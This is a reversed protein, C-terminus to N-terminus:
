VPTLTGLHHRHRTTGFLFRPEVEWHIACDVKKGGVKGHSHHSLGMISKPAASSGWFWCNNMPPHTRGGPISGPVMQDSCQDVTLHEALQAIAPTSLGQLLLPMANGHKCGTQPGLKAM